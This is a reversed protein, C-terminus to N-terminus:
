KQARPDSPPTPALGFRRGIRYALSGFLSNLDATLQQVQRDLGQAWATRAALEAETSHLQDVCSKLDARLHVAEQELRQYHALMEANEAQLKLAWERSQDFEERLSKLLGKLRVVETELQRCWATKRANEAELEEVLQRARAREQAAESQLAQHQQHLQDLNDKSQELWQNKQNLEAELLAIHNERQWLVNGSGPLYVFSAAEPSPKSSCVAVFFHAENPDSRESELCADIGTAGAQSFVVGAAHNELYLRVCPFNRALAECFEQYDFEHVHFPNAGERSARYYLRNPTSVILEGGSVLVRRSEALLKEWEELHEIVEFAVVLDFSGDPFPLRRCDGRLFELSSASYRRRASDIAAGAIDLGVVRRAVVALRAAGYGVGCGADLVMKNPARRGAFAYRAVHENWLDPDVEGPVVREGTFERM